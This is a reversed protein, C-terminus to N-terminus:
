FNACNQYFDHFISFFGLLLFVVVTIELVLKNEKSSIRICVSPFIGASVCAVREGM